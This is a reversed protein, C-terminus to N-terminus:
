SEDELLEQVLEDIILIDEWNEVQGSLKMIEQEAQRVADKDESSLIIRQQKALKKALNKREKMKM